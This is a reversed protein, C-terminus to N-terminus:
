AVEVDWLYRLVGAIRGYGARECMSLVRHNCWSDLIGRFRGTKHDHDIVWVKTFLDAGCIPCEGAQQDWKRAVDEATLGYKTYIRRAWEHRKRDCARGGRGWGRRLSARREDESRDRL